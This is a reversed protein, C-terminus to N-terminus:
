ETELNKMIQELSVQTAEYQQLEAAVAHSQELRKKLTEQIAGYATVAADKLRDAFELSFHRFVRNLNQLQTKLIVVIPHLLYHTPPQKM